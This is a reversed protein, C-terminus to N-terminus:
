FRGSQYDIVAQRIEDETNMVFPGYRAIPEDLPRGAVLILRADDAARMRLAAGDSLLAIHGRTVAQPDDSGLDVSGEYVYAFASHGEAVPLSVDGDASLRVDFFVPETSVGRVPGSAADLEGAIIKVSVRADISVTPVDSAPIDQYRPETMKDSAPLNVWLQFGWM